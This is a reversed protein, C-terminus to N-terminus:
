EWVTYRLNATQMNGSLNVQVRRTFPIITEAGAGPASYNSGYELKESKFELTGTDNRVELYFEPAKLLRRQDEYSLNHFRDLKEGQLVNDPRAFGPIQVTSSNWDEPYGPTTVLFTTTYRAQRRMDAETDFETQNSLVANWSTLFITILVSFVLISGIYDPM